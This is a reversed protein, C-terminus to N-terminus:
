HSYVHIKPMMVGGSFASIWGGRKKFVGEFYLHFLQCICGLACNAAALGAQIM